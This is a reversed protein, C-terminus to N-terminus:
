SDQRVADTMAEIFATTGRGGRRRSDRAKALAQGILARVTQQGVAPGPARRVVKVPATGLGEVMLVPGGNGLMVRDGLRVPVSAVIREGNLFTGNKSGADRLVLAGTPGATLEAHVRSVLQRDEAAHVRIECEQGRGLRIRTGHGELREGTGVVLLAVAYPRAEISRAETLTEDDAEALAAVSVRPGSEGLSIVDGLALATESTVRRGNVFTGNRSGVDVIRWVGGTYRLEAHRTSVIKAADGSFAVTADGGRGLRVVPDRSETVRQSQPEVLRIYPM